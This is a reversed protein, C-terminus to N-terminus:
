SNNRRPRVDYQAEALHHSALMDLTDRLTDIDEKYSPLM